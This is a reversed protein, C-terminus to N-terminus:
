RAETWVTSTPEIIDWRGSWGRPLVITDGAACRQASGDANSMFFAGEVVFLVEASDRPAVEFAGPACSLFGVSTPGLDYIPQALNAPAAYM